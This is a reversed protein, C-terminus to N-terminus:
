GNKKREAEKLAIELAKREQDKQWAELEIKLQSLEFNEPDKEIIQSFLNEAVQVERKEVAEKAKVLLEDIIKKMKIREEDARKQEELEAIRKLGMKTQELYSQVKKYDPDISIVKQFEIQALDYRSQEFFSVGLEYAVNRANELEKSLNLVQKPDPQSKNDEKKVVKTANSPVKEEEPLFLLVLAGLLLAYIAKKRKVPDKWIRKIISKEAQLEDTLNLNNSETVEEEIIEETEIVQGTEVPM